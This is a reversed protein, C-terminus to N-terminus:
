SSNCGGPRIRTVCKQWLTLNKEKKEAKRKRELRIEIYQVLLKRDELVRKAAVAKKEDSGQRIKRLQVLARKTEFRLEMKQDM